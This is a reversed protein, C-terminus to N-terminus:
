YNEKSMKSACLYPKGTWISLSRKLGKNLFFLNALFCHQAEGLSQEIRLCIGYTPFLEEHYRVFNISILFVFCKPFSKVWNVHLQQLAQSFINSTPLLLTESNPQEGLSIMEEEGTLSRAESRGGRLPTSGSCGAPTGAPPCGKRRGACPDPFGFRRWVPSQHERVGLSPTRAVRMSSLCLAQKGGTRRIHATISQIFCKASVLLLQAAGWLPKM